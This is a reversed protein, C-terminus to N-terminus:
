VPTVQEPKFWLVEHDLKTRPKRAFKVLYHKEGGLDGVSVVSGRLGHYDCDPDSITVQMSPNKEWDQLNMLWKKLLPPGEVERSDLLELNDIFRCPLTITEAEPLPTDRLYEALIEGSFRM